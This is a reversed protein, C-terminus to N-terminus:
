DDRLWKEPVYDDDSDSDSDSDLAAWDMESAKLTSPTYTYPLYDDFTYNHEPINQDARQRILIPMPLVVKIPETKPKIEKSYEVVNPKKITEAVEPVKALACAYSVKPAETHKLTTSCLAPFEEVEQKDKTQKGKTQKGKKVDMEEENDSDNNDFLEEFQNVPKKKNNLPKEAVVKEAYEARRLAKTEAKKKEALISCYSATHGQGSCYTCTLNLLTPCVVKGKPGPESKVYHSTYEIETKGADFCVKCFPKNLKNSNNNNNRYSM